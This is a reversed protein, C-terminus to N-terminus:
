VASAAVLGGGDAVAATELVHDDVMHAQVSGLDAMAGSVEVAAYVNTTVVAEPVIYKSSRAKEVSQEAGSVVGEVTGPSRSLPVSANPQDGSRVVSDSPTAYVNFSSINDSGDYVYQPAEEVAKGASEHETATVQPAIPDGFVAYMSPLPGDAIAIRSGDDPTEQQTPVEYEAVGPDQYGGGIGTRDSTIASYDVAAYQPQTSDGLAVLPNPEMPTSGVRLSIKRHVMPDRNRETQRRRISMIIAILVVLGVGVGIGVGIDADDSHSPNEDDQELSQVVEYGGVNELSSIEAAVGAPDRTFIKYQIVASGAKVICEVLHADQDVGEAAAAIDGCALDYLRDKGFVHVDVAILLSGAVTSEELGSVILCRRWNRCNSRWECGRYCIESTACPGSCKSCYYEQCLDEMTIVSNSGVTKVTLATTPAAIAVTPALLSIGDCARYSLSYDPLASSTLEDSCTTNQEIYCFQKGDLLSQCDGGGRGAHTVNACVCPSTTSSITVMPVGACADYSYSYGTLASIPNGDACAGPEIYCFQKGNFISQCDGGGGYTEHTVNACVCTRVAETTSMQVTARGTIATTTSYTGLDLPDAVNFLSKCRGPNQGDCDSTDLYNPHVCLTVPEACRKCARAMGATGPVIRVPGLYYGADCSDCANVSFGATPFRTQCSKPPIPEGYICVCSVSAVPASQAALLFVGWITPAKM